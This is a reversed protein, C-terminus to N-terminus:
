YIQSYEMATEIVFLLMHAMDLVKIALKLFKNIQKHNVKM